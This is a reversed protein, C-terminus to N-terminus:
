VAATLIALAAAGAGEPTSARLRHARCRAALRIMDALAHGYDFRPSKIVARLLEHAAEAQSLPSVEEPGQAIVLLDTVPPPDGTSADPFPY